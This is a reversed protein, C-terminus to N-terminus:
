LLFGKTQTETKELKERYRRSRGFSIGYEVLMGWKTVVRAMASLEVFRVDGRKRKQKRILYGGGIHGHDGKTADRM